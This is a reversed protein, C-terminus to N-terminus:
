KKKLNSIRYELNISVLEGSILNFDFYGTLPRNRQRYGAFAEIVVRQFLVATGSLYFGAHSTFGIRLATGNTQGFGTGVGMKLLPAPFCGPNHDAIMMEFYFIDFPGARLSLQPLFPANQKGSYFNGIHFGAKIGFNRWNYSYFPNFSYQKTEIGTRTYSEDGPYRWSESIIGGCIRIGFIRHRFKGTTQTYSVVMGFNRHEPKAIYDHSYPPAYSKQFYEYEGQMYGAGISLYSTKAMTDLLEIDLHIQSHCFFSCSFLIIACTERM